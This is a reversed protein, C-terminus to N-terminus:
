FVFSEAEALGPGPYQGLVDVDGTGGGTGVIDVSGVNTPFMALVVMGSNGTFAVARVKGTPGAAASVLAMDSRVALLVYAGEAPLGHGDLATVTVRRTDAPGPASTSVTIGLRNPDTLSGITSQATGRAQKQLIVPPTVDRIVFMQGLGIRGIRRPSTLIAAMQASTLEICGIPNLPTRPM